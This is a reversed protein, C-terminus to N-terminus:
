DLAAPSHRREFERLEARANTLDDRVRRQLGALLAEEARRPDTGEARASSAGAAHEVEADDGAL